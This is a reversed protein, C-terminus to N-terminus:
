IMLVFDFNKYKCTFSFNNKAKLLNRAFLKVNLQGRALSLCVCKKVFNVNVNAYLIM